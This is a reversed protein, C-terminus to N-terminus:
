SLAHGVRLHAVSGNCGAGQLQTGFECHHTAGAPNRLQPLIRGAPNCRLRLDVVPPPSAPPGVSGGGQRQSGLECPRTPGTDPTPCNSHGPRHHGVQGNGPQRVPQDPVSTTVEVTQPQLLFKEQVFDGAFAPAALEVQVLLRAETAAAVTQPQPQKSSRPSLSSPAKEALRSQDCGAPGAASLSLQGAM